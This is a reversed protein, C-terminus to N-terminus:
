RNWKPCPVSSSVQTSLLYQLCFGITVCPLFEACYHLCWLFDSIGDVVLDAFIFGHIKMM